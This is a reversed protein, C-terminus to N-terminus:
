SKVPMGPEAPSPMPMADVPQAEIVQGAENTRLNFNRGKIRARYIHKGASKLLARRGLGTVDIYVLAVNRATGTLIRTSHAAEAGYKHNVAAILRESGVDAIKKGSDGVTAAILKAAIIFKRGPGLKELPGGAPTPPASRSKVDTDVYLPPASSDASKRPPLPPAMGAGYPPPQQGTGGNPLNPDFMSPPAAVPQPARLPIAPTERGKGKDQRLGAAAVRAIVNQVADVTKSSVVRAKGTYTQATELGRRTGASTLWQIAAPPPASPAGDITPSASPHPTARSIYLNSASTIGSTLL